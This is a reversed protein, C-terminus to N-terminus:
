GILLQALKVCAIIDAVSVEPSPLRLPFLPRPPRSGPFTRRVGTFEGSLPRVDYHIFFGHFFSLILFFVLIKTIELFYM